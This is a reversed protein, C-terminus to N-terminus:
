RNCVTVPCTTGVFTGIQAWVHALLICVYNTPSSYNGFVQLSEGARGVLLHTKAKQVIKLTRPDVPPWITARAEVTVNLSVTFNLFFLRNRHCDGPILWLM